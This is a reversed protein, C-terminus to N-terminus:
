GRLARKIYGPTKNMAVLTAEATIKKLNKNDNLGDRLNVKGMVLEGTSVLVYKSGDKVWIGHKIALDVLSMTSDFGPQQGPEAFMLNMDMELFPRFTKNKKAQVKTVSGVEKDKEKYQQIRDVSLRVSSYFKLARGGPTDSKPGFSANMTARLQNVFVVCTGTKSAIGTMKRLAKGIMRAQLGMHADEIEGELEARPVLAAVSDIVVLTMGGTEIVDLAAQLAQEGYNPEAILLNDTDVGLAAAYSHDFAAEADVYAIDASPNVKQTNAILQSLLTGKGASPAGFLEVIKGRPFGGSGIIHHDLGFIGTPLVPHLEKSKDKMREFACGGDKKISKIAAEVLKHKDGEVVPAVYDPDAELEEQKAKAKARAANSAM